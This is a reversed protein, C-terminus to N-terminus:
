GIQGEDGLGKEWIQSFPPRFLRQQRRIEPNVASTNLFDPQNPWAPVM